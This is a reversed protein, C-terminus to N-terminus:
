RACHSLLSRWSYGKEKKPNKQESINSNTRSLAHWGVRQFGPAYVSCTRGISDQAEKKPNHKEKEVNNRGHHWLLTQALNDSWYNEQELSM